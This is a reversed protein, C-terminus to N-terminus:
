LSYAGGVPTVVNVNKDAFFSVVDTRAQWTASDEGGGAGNLLYLTPRPVSTDAPRIVELLIVKEMAASYVFMNLQRDDIEEIHDLVSGDASAPKDAPLARWVDASATAMQGFMASSAIVAVALLARCHGIASM